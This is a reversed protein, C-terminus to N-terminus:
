VPIPLVGSFGGAPIVTGDPIRFKQLQSQSDSLYWGGINVPVATLNALEIADELPPDTHTLVENIVVSTLPLYNGQEPTPTTPFAVIASGGDPLRGEAVGPQQVGFDVADLLSFDRGYLRLSEGWGDLKFNVHNRGNGPHGDAQWVVWDHGAIFSLPAIAFRTM